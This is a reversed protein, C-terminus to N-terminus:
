CALIANVRRSREVPGVPYPLDVAAMSSSDGRACWAVELYSSRRSVKRYPRPFELVRRPRPTLPRGFYRGAIVIRRRSYPGLHSGGRAIVGLAESEGGAFHFIQRAVKEAM